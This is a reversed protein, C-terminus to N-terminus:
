SESDESGKSDRAQERTVQQDWYASGDRPKFMTRPAGAKTVVAFTNSKADYLLTDGNSRAM